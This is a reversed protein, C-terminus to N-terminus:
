FDVTETEVELLLETYKAVVAADQGSKELLEIIRFRDILVVTHLKLNNEWRNYLDRYCRPIFHFLPYDYNIHIYGAWKSKNADYIKDEWDTGCACQAFYLPKLHLNDAFPQWAVWDLGGDGVNHVGANQLTFFPTLPLSLKQALDSVKHYFLKSGPPPPDDSDGTGGAGFFESVALNPILMKFPEDCLEEFLHTLRYAFGNNRNILRIHSSLLLIIYVKHKDTLPNQLSVAYRDDINFPYYDAIIAKRAKMYDIVTLLCTKIHQEEEPDTDGEFQDDAIKDTLPTATKKYVPDIQKLAKAADNDNEDLLRDKLTEVSLKRDTSLMTLIEVYDAWVNYDNEEKPFQLKSKNLYPM